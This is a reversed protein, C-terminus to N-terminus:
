LCKIFEKKHFNDKYDKLNKNGSLMRHFAIFAQDQNEFIIELRFTRGVKPEINLKFRLVM